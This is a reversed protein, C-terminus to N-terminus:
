SASRDHRQGEKSRRRSDYLEEKKDNKLIDLTVDFTGLLFITAAFFCSYGAKELINGDGYIYIQFILGLLGFLTSGIAAIGYFAEISGYFFVAQKKTM